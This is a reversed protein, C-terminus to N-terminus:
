IMKLQKEKIMLLSLNSNKKAM